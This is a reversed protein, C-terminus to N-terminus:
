MRVDKGRTGLGGRVAPRRRQAPVQQVHQQHEQEEGEDAGDEHQERGDGRVHTHAHTHTHTHLQLQDFEYYNLIM